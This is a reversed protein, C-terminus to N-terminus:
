HRYRFFGFFDYALGVTALSVTDDDLTAYEYRAELQWGDTFRYSVGLGAALGTGSSDMEANVAPMGPIDFRSEFREKWILAGVRGVVQINGPIDLGLLISVNIGNMSVESLGTGTTNDHPDSFGFPVDITGYNRSGVELGIHESIWGGVYFLFGLDNAETDFTFDIGSVERQNGATKLSTPGFGFGVYVLHNRKNVEEPEMIRIETAHVASLGCAAVLTTVMIARKMMRREKRNNRSQSESAIGIRMLRALVYCIVYVGIICNSVVSQVFTYEHTIQM